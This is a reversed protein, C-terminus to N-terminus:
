GRLTRMLRRLDRHMEPCITAITISVMIIGIEDTITGVHYSLTVWLSLFVMFIKLKHRSPMLM